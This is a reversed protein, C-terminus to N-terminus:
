RIGSLFWMSLTRLCKTMLSVINNLPIVVRVHKICYTVIKSNAFFLPKQSDEYLKQVETLKEIRHKYYFM